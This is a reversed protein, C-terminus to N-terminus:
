RDFVAQRLLDRMIKACAQASESDIPANNISSRFFVNRFSGAAVLPIKKALFVTAAQERPSGCGFNYRPVLIDGERALSSFEPDYNFMCVEANKKVPANDEYTYKGPYIGNTNISDADCFVIEDKVSESFSPYVGMVSTAEEVPKEGVTFIEEAAQVM